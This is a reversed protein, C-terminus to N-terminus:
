DNVKSESNVNNMNSSRKNEDQENNVEWYKDRVMSITWVQTRM